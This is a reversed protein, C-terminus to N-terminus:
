KLDRAKLVQEVEQRKYPTQKNMLKFILFLPLLMVLGFANAAISYFVIGVLFGILAANMISASKIKKSMDLLEEDSFDSLNRKAM